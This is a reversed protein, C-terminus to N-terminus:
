GRGQIEGGAVEGEVRGGVELTGQGEARGIPVETTEPYGSPPNHLPRPAEGPWNVIGPEGPQGRGAPPWPLGSGPGPGARTPGAPRHGAGGQAGEAEPESPHGHPRLATGAEGGGWGPVRPLQSPPLPRASRAASLSPRPFRRPLPFLVPLRVSNTSNAELRPAVGSPPSRLRPHGTPGAPAGPRLRWAPRVPGSGPSWRVQIISGHGGRAGLRQIYRCRGPLM